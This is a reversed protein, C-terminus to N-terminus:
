SRARSYRCGWTFARMQAALMDPVLPGAGGVGGVELIKDHLQLGGDKDAPGKEVIKSM